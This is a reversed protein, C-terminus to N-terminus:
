LNEKIAPTKMTKKTKRDKSGASKSCIKQVESEIAHNRQIHWAFNLVSSEYFLCFDKGKNGKRKQGTSKIKGNLHQINESVCPPIDKTSRLVSMNSKNSPALTENYYASRNSCDDPM